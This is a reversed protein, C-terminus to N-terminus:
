VFKQELRNLISNLDDRDSLVKPTEFVTNNEAPYYYQFNDDNQINQLIFGFALNVKVTCNLEDYIAIMKEKLFSTSFDNMRFNYVTKNSSEFKEDNLFHKVAEIEELLNVNHQFETLDVDKQSVRTKQIDFHAERKHKRLCYLTRFEESCNKCKFKRLVSRSHKRIQHQLIKKQSPFSEHCSSCAHQHQKLLHRIM